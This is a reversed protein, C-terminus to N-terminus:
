WKRVEVDNQYEIIGASLISDDSHNGWFVV